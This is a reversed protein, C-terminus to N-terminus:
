QPLPAVGLYSGGIAATVWVEDGDTAVARAFLAEAEDRRGALNYWAGAEALDDADKPCAAVLRDAIPLAKDWQRAEGYIRLIRRYDSAEPEAALVEDIIAQGFARDGGLYFARAVALREWSGDGAQQLARDLVETGAQEPEREVFLEPTTKPRAAMALGTLGALGAVVAVVFGTLVLRNLCKTRM